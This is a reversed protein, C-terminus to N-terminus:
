SNTSLQVVDRFYVTSLQVVDRFYVRFYVRTLQCNFLTGLVGGDIGETRYISATGVGVPPALHTAPTQLPVAGLWAAEVARPQRVTPLLAATRGGSLNRFRNEIDHRM